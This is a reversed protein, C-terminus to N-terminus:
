RRGLGTPIEMQLGPGPQAALELTQVEGKWAGPGQDEPGQFTM